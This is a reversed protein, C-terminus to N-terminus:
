LSQNYSGSHERSLKLRCFVISPLNRLGFTVCLCESRGFFPKELSRWPKVCHINFCQRESSDHVFSDFLHALM